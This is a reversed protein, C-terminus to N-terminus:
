LATAQKKKKLKIHIANTLLVKCTEFTWCLQMSCQTRVEWFLTEGNIEKDEEIKGLWGGERQCQRHMM